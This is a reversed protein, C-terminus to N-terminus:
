LTPQKANHQKKFYSRLSKNQRKACVEPEDTAAAASPLPAAEESATQEAVLNELESMARNKMYEVKEEKIYTMKFHPDVLSAMDLLEETTHDDYKDNLYKLIGEKINITLQTDDDQPKLVQTNFLHLVPKVYSVSTCQEGSLADTFEMLPSLAKNMSELVDMDQWTLVLHRTKKDAHLVQSLAKEQEIVREIMQQLSGWRTPTDTILQHAPLGLEAEAKALERSRKWSNCFASVLKKCVGVTREVQPLKM